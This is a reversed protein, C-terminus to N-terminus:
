QLNMLRDFWENGECVTAPTLSIDRHQVLHTVGDWLVTEEHTKEDM